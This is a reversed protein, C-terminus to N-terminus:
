ESLKRQWIRRGQKSKGINKISNYQNEAIIYTCYFGTIGRADPSM